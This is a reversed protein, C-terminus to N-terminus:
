HTELQNKQSEELIIQVSTPNPSAFETDLASKLLEIEELQAQMEPSFALEIETSVQQDEPLEAYTYAILKNFTSTGDM